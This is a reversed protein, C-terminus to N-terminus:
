KWGCIKFFKFFMQFVNSVFNKALIASESLGFVYGDRIFIAYSFLASFILCIILDWFCLFQKFFHIKSIADIDCMLHKQYKKVSYTYKKYNIYTTFFYTAYRSDPSIKILRLRPSQNDDARKVHSETSFRGHWRLWRTRLMFINYNHKLQYLINLFYSNFSEFVFM